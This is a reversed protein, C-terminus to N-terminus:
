RSHTLLSVDESHLPRYWKQAIVTPIVASAIVVGVLISYQEQNIYGSQLGFVSAITGFTLGTSMLLTTYLAGDPIYECALLYVGMFKTIMKLIFLMAFLGFAGIILAFSVNMGGIIFFVPTIFAYAVTRLKLTVDRNKENEALYRGMFLGLLFTPLVAHGDGLNAFYIFVILLLFIFKLEPEIVSGKIRPNNFLYHSYRTALIIVIVATIIFIGTYLSPSIFLISLAIATGMDTIFTAAMIIKGIDSNCLGSEVLVSYVVALSTTSLAVGGILSAQASWGALLYTLSSVGVFPIFFSFFGLLFSEKFKEHMLRLNIETGALFTLIIGGLNAIYTMWSEAHLIGLNGLIAGTVVEIIAVSFGIRISILSALFIIIAMILPISDPQL